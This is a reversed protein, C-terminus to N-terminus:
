QLSQIAEQYQRAEDRYDKFLTFSPAAPSLLCTASAPTHRYALAVAEPMSFAEFCHVARGESGRLAEVLARLRSGTEPFLILTTISSEVIKAALAQYDQHREHGGAILTTPNLAEIAALTAEPITALTDAYFTIGRYTGCPQLRTDLPTFSAVAERMVTPALGVLTSVTLAAMLNIRNHEGLLATTMTTDFDAARFLRKQARTPVHAQSDHCVLYDAPSQQATIRWKAQRYEYLSRHYDLHDAYIPLLVAIHPAFTLAMLQFSSLECVVWTAPTIEPLATLAPHGINGLLIAPQQAQTLLHHVLSATTSKGKTGTVGILHPSPCSDFFLQMHSTVVAGAQQAQQIAPLHPSVGASKIVVPYDALATLYEPGFHLATHVDDPIWTPRQQDACGIRLDPFRRRLFHYTSQGERAFGLILVKEVAALHDLVHM